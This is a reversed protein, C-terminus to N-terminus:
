LLVQIIIHICRCYLYIGPPLIIKNDEASEVVFRSKTLKRPPPTDDASEDEEKIRPAIREEEEEM